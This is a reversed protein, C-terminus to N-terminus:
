KNKPIFYAKRNAYDLKHIPIFPNKITIGKPKKDKFLKGDKDYRSVVIFERYDNFNDSKTKNPDIQIINKSVLECFFKYRVAEYKKTGLHEIDGSCINKYECHYKSM